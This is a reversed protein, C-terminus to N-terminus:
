NKKGEGNSRLANNIIEEVDKKTLGEVKDGLKLKKTGKLHEYIVKLKKNLEEQKTKNEQELRDITTKIDDTNSSANFSALTESNKVLEKFSSQLTNALDGHNSTHLLSQLADFDKTDGTTARKVIDLVENKDLGLADGAFTISNNMETLNNIEKDKKDIAAASNAFSKDTALIQKAFTTDNFKSGSALENDTGIISKLKGIKKERLSTKEATNYKSVKTYKNDLKKLKKEKKDDMEGNLLGTKKDLISKQRNLNYMEYKNDKNKRYDNISSQVSKSLDVGTAKNVLSNGVGALHKGSNLLNSGTQQLGGKFGGAKFAGAIKAGGTIGAIAGGLAFGAAKKIPSTVTNVNAQGTAFADGGGIWNSITSILEKVALLGTIFIILDVLWQIGFINLDIKSFIAWISMYVNMAIVSSYAMIVNKIFETKWSSMASGGDIASMTLPIPSLVYYFVVMFMRKVLGFCIILLMYLMFAGVIIGLFYNIEAKMYFCELYNDDLYFDEYSVENNFVIENENSLRSNGLSAFKQVSKKNIKFEATPNEQFYRQFGNSVATKIINALASYQSTYSPDYIVYWTESGIVDNIDQSLEKTTFEKKQLTIQTMGAGDETAPEFTNTDTNYTYLNITINDQSNTNSSDQEIYINVSIDEVLTWDTNNYFCYDYYDVAYASNSIQIEEYSFERGGNYFTIVDNFGPAENLYYNALDNLNKSHGDRELISLYDSEGATGSFLTSTVSLDGGGTAGDIARLIINGFWIGFICAIPIFIFGALGKVAGSVIVNWSKSESAYQNKIISIVTFIILLLIGLMTLSVLINKVTDTFILQFLFENRFASPLNSDLHTDNVIIPSNSIGAFKKFITMALNCVKAFAYFIPSLIDAVFQNLDILGGGYLALFM